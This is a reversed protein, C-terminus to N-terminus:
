DQLWGGIVCAVKGRRLSVTARRGYGPEFLITRDGTAVSIMVPRTFQCVYYANRTIFGGDPVSSCDAGGFPHAFTAGGYKFTHPERKLVISQWTDTAMPCPPGVINWDRRLEHQHAWLSYVAWSPIGAALVALTVLGLTATPGRRPRKRLPGFIAASAM